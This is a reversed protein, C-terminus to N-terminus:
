HTHINSHLRVSVPSHLFICVQRFFDFSMHILTLVVLFIFYASAVISLAGLIRLSTRYPSPNDGSLCGDTLQIRITAEVEGMLGLSSIGIYLFVGIGVGVSLFYLAMCPLREKNSVPHYGAGVIGVILLVIMLLSFYIFYIHPLYYKHYTAIRWIGLIAWVVM